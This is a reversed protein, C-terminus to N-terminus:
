EKLFLESLGDLRPKMVCPFPKPRSVVGTSMEPPPTIEHGDEDKAKSIDLTALMTAVMIWLSNTALHRGPCIRRGFGWQGVPLPEGAGGEEVPLYRDPDFIYPDHYITEDHTMAHSNAVIYAGKPIFMGEYVDDKTSVHTVGLPAAPHWRLIEQLIRNIYPLNPRDDFTPLRSKGVVADIEARAKKQVEPHHVMNFIFVMTSSFTTDHAAFFMVAGAGKLDRETIVDEMKEDSSQQSIAELVKSVLSPQAIGSEIDKKVQAYPAERFEM